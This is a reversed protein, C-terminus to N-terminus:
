TLCALMGLRDLVVSFYPPLPAEFNQVNFSRSDPLCLRWAHLLLNPPNFLAREDPDKVGRHRAGAYLDDGVIWHGSRALHARLQHTRGTRPHLELLSVHRSGALTRYETLAQRGSCGAKMRRRDKPDPGIMWRYSGESPRPHGWVLALYTKDIIGDRLAKSLTSHMAATRALMVLGTTGADLRHILLLNEPSLGWDQLPKAEVSDLLGKVAAQPDSRQTALSVGAAKNVVVLSEDVYILTSSLNPVEIVRVGRAAGM